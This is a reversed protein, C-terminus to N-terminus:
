KQQAHSFMQATRRELRSLHLESATMPTAQGWGSFRIHKPKSTVLRCQLTQADLSISHKLAEASGMRLSMTLFLTLLM